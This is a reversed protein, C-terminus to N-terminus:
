KQNEEFWKAAMMPSLVFDLVEQAGDYVNGSSTEEGSGVECIDYTM